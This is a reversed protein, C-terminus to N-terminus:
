AAAVLEEACEDEATPQTAEFDRTRILILALVGSVFAVGASILLLSNLSSAYHATLTASTSHSIDAAFV